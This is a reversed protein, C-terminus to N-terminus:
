MLMHLLSNEENHGWGSNQLIYPPRQIFRLNEPKKTRLFIKLIVWGIKASKHNDGRQLTGPGQNTCHQVGEM